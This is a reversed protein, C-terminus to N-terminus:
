KATLCGNKASFHHRRHQVSLRQSSSVSQPACSHAGCPTCLLASWPVREDSAVFLCDLPMATTATSLRHTLRAPRPWDVAASRLLTSAALGHILPM